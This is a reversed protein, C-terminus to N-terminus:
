NPPANVGPVHSDGSSPPLHGRSHGAHRLWAAATRADEFLCVVDDMAAMFAVSQAARRSDSHPSQVWAVSLVGARRLRPLFDDAIWDAAAHWGGIVQTNDNLILRCGTAVVWDLLRECGDRVSQPSLQGKWDVYLWGNAHDRFIDVHEGQYLARLEGM